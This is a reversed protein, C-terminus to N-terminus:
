EQARRTWRKLAARFLKIVMGKDGDRQSDQAIFRKHNNWGSTTMRQLNYSSLTPRKGFVFIESVFAIPHRKKAM